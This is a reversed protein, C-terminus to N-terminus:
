LKMEEKLIGELMKLDEKFDIETWKEGKLFLFNLSKRRSFELFAFDYYANNNKELLSELIELFLPIDKKKLFSVGIFEGSSEKIDLHKGMDLIVNDKIIVKFSEETLKKSVDVVIFSKDKKIQEKIKKWAKTSLFNDGNFILIDDLYENDENILSKLVIWLSYGTNTRNFIPNVVYNIKKGYKQSLYTLIPTLDLFKYGLVFIVEFNLEGLNKFLNEILFEDKYVVSSKNNLLLFPISFAFKSKEGIKLRSGKGAALIIGIM